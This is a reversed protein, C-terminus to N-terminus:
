NSFVISLNCYITSFYFSFVLRGDYKEGLATQQVKAMGLVLAAANFKEEAQAKRAEHRLRSLELQRKREINFQTDAGQLSQLM